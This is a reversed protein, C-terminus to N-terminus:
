ISKYLNMVQLINQEVKERFKDQLDNVIYNSLSEMEGNLNDSTLIYVSIINISYLDADDRNLANEIFPLYESFSLGLTFSSNIIMTGMLDGSEVTLEKEVLQEFKIYNAAIQNPNTQLPTKDEIKGLIEKLSDILNSDVSEIISFLYTQQFYTFNLIVETIIEEPQSENDYLLNEIFDIDVSNQITHFSKLIKNIDELTAAETLTIGQIELMYRLKEKVNHLFRSTTTTPDYLNQSMTIDLFQDQYDELNFLTFLEFSEKILVALDESYNDDIFCEILVDM